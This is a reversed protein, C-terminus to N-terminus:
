VHKRESRALLERLANTDLGDLELYAAELSEARLLTQRLEASPSGAVPIFLAYLNGWSERGIVVDWSRGDADEFRKM